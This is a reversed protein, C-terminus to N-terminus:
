RVFLHKTITLKNNSEQGKSVTMTVNMTVWLGNWSLNSSRSLMWLYQSPALPVFVCNWVVGTVYFVIMCPCLSVRTLFVNCLAPLPWYHVTIVQIASYLHVLATVWPQGNGYERARLTLFKVRLDTNIIKNHWYLWQLWLIYPNTRLIKPQFKRPEHVEGVTSLVAFTFKRSGVKWNQLPM